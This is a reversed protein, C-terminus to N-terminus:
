KIKNSSTQLYIAINFHDTNITDAPKRHWFQGLGLDSQILDDKLFIILCNTNDTQFLISWMDSKFFLQSQRLFTEFEKDGPKNKM